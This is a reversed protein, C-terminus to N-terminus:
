VECLMSALELYGSPFSHEKIEALAKNAYYVVSDPKQNKRQIKAIGSYISILDNHLNNKLASVEAKRYYQLAGDNNEQLAKTSAMLILGYTWGPDRKYAKEAYFLASDAQGMNLFIGSIGGWFYHISSQDSYSEILTLAKHYYYLSKSFDNQSSYFNGISTSTNCIGMTDELEEFSALAKFGYNLAQPDNGLMSFTECLFLQSLAIGKKLDAKEAIDLANSVYKLATDPNSYRYHDFLQILIQVKVSDEKETKLRRKLMEEFQASVTLSSIIFLIFLLLHKM